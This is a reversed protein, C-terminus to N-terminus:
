IIVLTPIGRQLVIFGSGVDGRCLRSGFFVDRACFNSTEQKSFDTIPCETEKVVTMYTTKIDEHPAPKSIDDTIGFGSVSGEENNRPVIVNTLPLAIPKLYDLM